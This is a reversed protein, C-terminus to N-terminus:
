VGGDYKEKFGKSLTEKDSILKREINKLYPLIDKLTKGDM